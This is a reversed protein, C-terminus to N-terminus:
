QMARIADGVRSLRILYDVAACRAPSLYPKLALLLAERRGCLSRGGGHLPGGEGKTNSEGTPSGGQQSSFFGRLLPAMASISQLLEAFEGEPLGEGSPRDEVPLDREGSM